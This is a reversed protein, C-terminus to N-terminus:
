LLPEQRLGALRALWAAPAQLLAQNWEQAQSNYRALRLQADRMADLASQVLAAPVVEGGLDTPSLPCREVVALLRPGLPPEGGGQVGSGSHLSQRLAGVHDVVSGLESWWAQAPHDGGTHLGQARLWVSLPAANQEVQELHRLLSQRAQACLSRMRKFRSHAGVMWAALLAFVMWLGLSLNMTWSWLHFFVGHGAHFPRM